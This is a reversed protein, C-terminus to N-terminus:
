PKDGNIYRVANSLAKKLTCASVHGNQKEQWCAPCREIGERENEPGEFTVWEAVSLGLICDLLLERERTMDGGKGPQTM